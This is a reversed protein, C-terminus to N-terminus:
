RSSCRFHARLRDTTSSLGCRLTQLSEPSDQSLLEVLKFNQRYRKAMADEDSNHHCDYRRWGLWISRSGKDDSFQGLSHQGLQRTIEVMSEDTRMSCAVPASDEELLRNMHKIQSRMHIERSLIINVQDGKQWLEDM